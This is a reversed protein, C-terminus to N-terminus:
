HWPSIRLLPHLMLLEEAFLMEQRLILTWKDKVITVNKLSQTDYFEDEVSILASNDVGSNVFDAWAVLTFTEDPALQLNFDPTTQPMRQVLTLTVNNQKYVGLVYRLHYGEATPLVSTGRTVAVDMSLHVKVNQKHDIASEADRCGMLLLGFFVYWLFFKIKM